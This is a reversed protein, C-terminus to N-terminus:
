GKRWKVWVIPMTLALTAGNAAIVSTLGAMLGYALWLVIGSVFLGLMLPSFDRASGLRLTRAAQPVFALTTLSGALLGVLETQDL